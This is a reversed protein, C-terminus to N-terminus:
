KKLDKNGILLLLQSKSIITNLRAQIYRSKANYLNAEAELLETISIMQNEYMLKTKEFLLENLELTAESEKEIKLFNQM